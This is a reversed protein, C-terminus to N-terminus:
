KTWNLVTASIKAIDMSNFADYFNVFAAIPASVGDLGEMGTIAKQEPTM